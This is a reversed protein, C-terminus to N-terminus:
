LFSPENKLCGLLLYKQTVTFIKLVCKMCMKESLQFASPLTRKM